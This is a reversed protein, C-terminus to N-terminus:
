ANIACVYASQGDDMGLRVYVRFVSSGRARFDGEGEDDGMMGAPPNFVRRGGGEILAIYVSFFQRTFKVLYRQLERM